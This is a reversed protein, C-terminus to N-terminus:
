AAVHTLGKLYTCILAARKKDMHRMRAKLTGMLAQRVLVRRPHRPDLGIKIVAIAYTRHVTDLDLFNVIWTM